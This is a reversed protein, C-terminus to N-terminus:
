IAMHVHLTLTYVYVPVAMVPGSIMADGIHSGAVSLGGVLLQNSSLIVHPTERSFFYLSGKITSFKSPGLM